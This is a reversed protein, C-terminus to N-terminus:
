QEGRPQARRGALGELEGDREAALHRVLRMQGGEHVVGVGVGREGLEQATREDRRDAGAVPERGTHLGLQLGGSVRGPGVGAGEGGGLM